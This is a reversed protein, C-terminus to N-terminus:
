KEVKFTAQNKKWWTEWDKSTNWGERAVSQLAKMAAPLIERARKAGADEEGGYGGGSDDARRSLKKIVDLLPEVSERARITGALNLAAMAIKSDKDNFYGYAAPLAAPDELKGLAEFIAIQTDAMGANAPLATLLLKVAQKLNEKDEKYEVLGQIATVRVEREDRVLLTGLKALVKKHQVKALEAVADMRDFLEKSKYATKFKDLAEEAAKDDGGALLALLLFATRM